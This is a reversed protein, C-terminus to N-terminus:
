QENRKCQVRRSLSGAKWGRKLVGVEGREREREAERSEKLVGMEGSEEMGAEIGDKVKGREGM